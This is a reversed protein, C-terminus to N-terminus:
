FKFILNLCGKFHENPEARKGLEITRCINVHCKNEENFSMTTFDVFSRHDSTPAYNKWNKKKKTTLSPWKLTFVINIM